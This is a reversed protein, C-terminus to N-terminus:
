KVPYVKVGLKDGIINKASRLVWAAQFYPTVLGITNINSMFPEALYSLEEIKEDISYSNEGIEIHPTWTNFNKEVQLGARIVLEISKAETIPYDENKNPGRGVAFVLSGDVLSRSEALDLMKYAVIASEITAKDPGIEPHNGSGIVALTVGSM